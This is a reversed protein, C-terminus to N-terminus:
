GEVWAAPTTFLGEMPLVVFSVFPAHEYFDDENYGEVKFHEKGETIEYACEFEIFIENGSLWEGLNTPYLQHEYHLIRIHVLGACGWPFYVSVKKLVGKVLPCPVRTPDSSETDAPIEIPYTFQM